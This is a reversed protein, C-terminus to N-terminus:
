GVLSIVELWEPLDPEKQVVEENVVREDLTDSCFIYKKENNNRM